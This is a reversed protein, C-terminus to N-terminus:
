LLILKRTAGSPEIAKQYVLWNLVIWGSVERCLRFGAAEIGKGSPLNEPTTEIVARDGRDGLHRMEALLARRYLGRGRAHREHRVIRGARFRMTTPTGHHRWHVAIRSALNLLRM